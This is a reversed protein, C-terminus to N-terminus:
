IKYFLLWTWQDSKSFKNPVQIFHKNTLFIHSYLWPLCSVVFTPFPKELNIVFAKPNDWRGIVRIAFLVLPHIPLSSCALKSPHVHFFRLAYEKGHWPINKIYEGIMHINNLSTFYKAMDRFYKTIHFLIIQCAMSYKAVDCGHNTIL